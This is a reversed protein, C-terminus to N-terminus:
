LRLTMLDPGTYPEASLTSDAQSERERVGEGKVGGGM